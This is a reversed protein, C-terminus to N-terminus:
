IACLFQYSRKAAANGCSKQLKGECRVKKELGYVTYYDCEFSIMRNSESPCLVDTPM